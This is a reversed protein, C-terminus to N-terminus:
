DGGFKNGGFGAKEKLKDDVADKLEQSVCIDKGEHQVVFNCNLKDAGYMAGTVLSGTAIATAVVKKLEERTM